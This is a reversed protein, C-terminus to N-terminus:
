IRDTPLFVGADDPSPLGGDAADGPPPEPAQGLALPPAILCVVTLAASVTGWLRRSHMAFLTM